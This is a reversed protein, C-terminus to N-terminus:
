SECAPEREVVRVLALFRPVYECSTRPLHGADVLDWFTAGPQRRLARDVRGQGANYAALALPWDGYRAHLARLYRAAAQTSREPHLRDDRQKTVVLGYRRATAAELQWLGLSGSRGRAVPHFGSELAPLLAICPPLGAETVIERIRPLYESGRGISHVTAAWLRRESRLRQEWVDVSPHVVCRIPRVTRFVPAPREPAAVPPPAPAALEADPLTTHRLPACAAVTSVLGVFLSRRLM